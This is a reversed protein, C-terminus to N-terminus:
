SGTSEPIARAVVEQLLAELRDLAGRNRAVVERGAAGAASAAASSGIFGAVQEALEDADGVTTLAGAEDLLGAVRVFNHMHPGAMVPLGLAAPELPNHGGTPVLSGGVFAADAAAYLLLLEGMTDGLYVEVGSPPTGDSRRAVIFGRARCLAAVRDFREPHRPVLLLLAEPIRARIAAHADLVAEDEGDHTSAAIWCPRGAGFEDRLEQGVALTM